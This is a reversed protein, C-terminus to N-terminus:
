KFSHDLLFAARDATIHMDLHLQIPRPLAGERRRFNAVTRGFVPDRDLLRAADQLLSIEIENARADALAQCLAIGARAIQGIMEGNFWFPWVAHGGPM